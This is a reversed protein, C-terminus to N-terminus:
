NGCRWCDWKIWVAPLSMSYIIRRMRPSLTRSRRIPRKPIPRPPLTWSRRIRWNPMISVPRSSCLNRMANYTKIRDFTTKRWGRSLRGRGPPVRVPRSCCWAPPPVPSGSICCARRWRCPRERRGPRANTPRFPGRIRRSTTSFKHWPTRVNVSRVYSVNWSMRTEWKIPHYPPPRHHRVPPLPHIGHPTSVVWCNGSGDPHTNAIEVYFTRDHFTPKPRPPWIM